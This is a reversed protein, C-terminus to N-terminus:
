IYIYLNENAFSYIRFNNHLRSKSVFKLMQKPFATYSNFLLTFDTDSFPVHSSKTVIQETLWPLDWNRRWSDVM